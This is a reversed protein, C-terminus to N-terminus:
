NKLYMSEYIIKIIPNKIMKEFQLINKCDNKIKEIDIFKLINYENIWIFKKNNKKCFDQLATMKEIEINYRDKPKIEYLHNTAADYFDSIYIKNKGKVRISEYQMHPNSHYFCAEWSSRFKKLSGDEMLIKSDWHTWSNTIIPTYQGESILKKLAASCKKGSELIQKKGVETQFYNLMNKSREERSNIGEETKFYKKLSESIKNKTEDSMKSYDTMKTWIRNKIEELTYKKFGVWGKYPQSYSFENETLLQGSYKSYHPEQLLFVFKNVCHKMMRSALIGVWIGYTKYTKKTVPAYFKETQNKYEKVFNLIEDDSFERPTIYPRKKPTKYQLNTLSM